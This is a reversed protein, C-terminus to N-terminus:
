NGGRSLEWMINQLSVDSTLMPFPGYEDRVAAISATLLAETLFPNHVASSEIDGLGANFNAGEAITFVGDDRDFATEPVLELLADLEAVLDSSCM